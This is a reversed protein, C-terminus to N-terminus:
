ISKGNKEGELFSIRADHKVATKELEDIEKGHANVRSTLEKRSREYESKFNNLLTTLRVITSNLKIIPTVITIMAVIFSALVILLENPM